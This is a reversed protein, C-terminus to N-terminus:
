GVIVVRNANLAVAALFTITVTNVTKSVSLPTLLGGSAAVFVQVLVDTTNFNHTFTFSTLLGNGFSAAFKRTRTAELSTVRTDLATRAQAEQTDAYSRAAIEANMTTTIAANRATVEASVAAAIDAPTAKEGLKTIMTDYLHPDNGISTAIEQLTDLLVPSTGIIAAIQQSVFQKTANASSSQELSAIRDQMASMTGALTLTRQESLAWQEELWACDIMADALRKETEIRLRRARQMDTEIQDLDQRVGPLSRRQYATRGVYPAGNPNVLRKNM